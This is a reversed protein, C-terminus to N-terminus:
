GRRRREEPSQEERRFPMGMEALALRSKAPNSNEFTIVVTM